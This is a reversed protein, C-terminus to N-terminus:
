VGARMAMLGSLLRTGEAFDAMDMAEDPNHSGHANRVFLMATPVGQNAFLASDHGAGSPMDRVRLGRARATDSLWSRLSPDMAAATSGSAEGLDIQVGTQAEVKQKAAHIYEDMIKLTAPFRSRVDITFDVRGSVKSFDAQAHDTFMRGFTLNLEHGSAEMAAWDQQLQCILTAMGVVADKRHSSPTAGSHAYQGVVRGDRYRLSGCIGTVVGVHDGAEVLVPGQEIHLEIFCDIRSAHLHPTGARLADLDAGNDRLYDALPRETNLRPANLAEPPLLGFAAKSGIYSVPFWASEEARIGMVTVDAEPRQGAKLWGAIVALGAVVGAAGDFNGGRPVSDLHSGTMVAPLSRDRGPLTLYLNLAADVTVDLGLKRATDAMLDHARQEGAGYTDRTIGVGDFSIAQLTDFLQTALAIDPEILSATQIDTM